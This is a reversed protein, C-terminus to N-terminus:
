ASDIISHVRSQHRIHKRRNTFFLSFRGFIDLRITGQTIIFYRGVGPSFNWTREVTQFAYLLSPLIRSPFHIWNNTIMAKIEEQLYRSHVNSFPTVLSDGLANFSEQMRWIPYSDRESMSNLNRYDVFFGPSGETLPVFLTPTARETQAPKFKKIKWMKDIYLKEFDRANPEAPYSACHVRKKQGPTLKIRNKAISVRRFDNALM